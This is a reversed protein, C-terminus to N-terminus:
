LPQRSHGADRVPVGLYQLLAVGDVGAITVGTWCVGFGGLWTIAYFGVFVPGHERFTAKIKEWRSPEKKPEESPSAFGRVGPCLRPRATLSVGRVDPCLLPRATLSVGTHSSLAASSRKATRLSSPARASSAGCFHGPRCVLSRTSHVARGSGAAVLSSARMTFLASMEQLSPRRVFGLCLACGAGSAPRAGCLVCSM